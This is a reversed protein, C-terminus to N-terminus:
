KDRTPREEITNVKEIAKGVINQLESIQNDDNFRAGKGIRPLVFSQQSVSVQSSNKIKRQVDCVWLSVAGGGCGIGM